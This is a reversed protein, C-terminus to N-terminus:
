SLSSRERLAAISLNAALRCIPAASDRVGRADDVPTGDAAAV